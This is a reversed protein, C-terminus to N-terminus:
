HHMKPKKKTVCDRVVNAGDVRVMSCHQKGPAVSAGIGGGKFRDGNQYSNTTQIPNTSLWVLQVFIPQELPVDGVKWPCFASFLPQELPPRQQKGHAHYQVVTSKQSWFTLTETQTRRSTCIKSELLAMWGRQRMSAHSVGHSALWLQDNLRIAIPIPPNTWCDCDANTCTGTVALALCHM